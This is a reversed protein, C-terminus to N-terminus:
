FFWHKIWLFKQPNLRDKMTIALPLISSFFTVKIKSVFNMRSPHSIDFKCGPSFLEKLHLRLVKVARESSKSLSWVQSVWLKEWVTLLSSFCHTQLGLSWSHCSSTQHRVQFVKTECLSDSHKQKLEQQIFKDLWLVSLSFIAVKPQRKSTWSTLKRM